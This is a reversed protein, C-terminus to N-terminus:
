AFGPRSFSGKISITDKVKGKGYQKWKETREDSSSISSYSRIRVSEKKKRTSRRERREDDSDPGDDGHHCAYQSATENIKM